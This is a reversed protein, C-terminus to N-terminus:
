DPKVSLAEESLRKTLRAEAEDAYKRCGNADILSGTAAKEFLDSFDPHASVLIDCDLTRVKAISQRFAKLYAPHDSFRYDPESVPNLSDAFVITICKGAECSKWSWTNGGPAHGPTDHATVKVGDVVLTGGDQISRLVAVAPFSMTNDTAYQPDDPLAHGLKLARVTESSAVAPAGSMRQLAALGGAHDYHAHSNLLWKVDRVDFGLAQINQKIVEASQPLGGDILFHGKPTTILVSSLGGVGVYYSNGHLKFPAQPANWKACNGCNIPQEDAHAHAAGASAAMLLLGAIM